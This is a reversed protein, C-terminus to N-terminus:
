EAEIIQSRKEDLHIKSWLNFHIFLIQNFM